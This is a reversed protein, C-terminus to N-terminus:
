IWVWLWEEEKFGSTRIYIHRDGRYSCFDGTPYYCFTPSLGFRLVTPENHSRMFHHQLPSYICGSAFFQRTFRPRSACHARLGQRSARPFPALYLRRPQAFRYHLAFVARQPRHLICMREWAFGFSASALAAPLVKKRMRHARTTLISCLNSGIQNSTMLLSYLRM